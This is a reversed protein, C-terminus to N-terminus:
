DLEPVFVDSELQEEEINDSDSETDEDTDSRDYIMQLLEQPSIFTKPSNAICM